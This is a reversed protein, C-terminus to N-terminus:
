HSNVAETVCGKDAQIRSSKSAGWKAHTHKKAFPSGLPSTNNTHSWIKQPREVCVFIVCLGDDMAVMM